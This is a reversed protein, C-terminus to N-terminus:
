APAKHLAEAAALGSLCAGEIRESGFADGAVISGPAATLCRRANTADPRWVHIGRTWVLVDGTALWTDVRARFRADRATFFQAGHDIRGEGRRRTAARGGLGRSKELVLVRLGRDRLAPAATLRAVGAGVIAVDLDPTV